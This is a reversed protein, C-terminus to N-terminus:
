FDSVLLLILQCVVINVLSLTLLFGVKSTYFNLSQKIVRIKMITRCKKIKYIYDVRKRYLDAEILMQLKLAKCSKLVQKLISRQLQKLAITRNKDVINILSRFNKINKKLNCFSM